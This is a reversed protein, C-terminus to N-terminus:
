HSRLFAPATSDSDPKQILRGNSYILDDSGNPTGKNSRDLSANSVSGDPGASIIWYQQGDEAGLYVFRQDWADTQPLEKVYTPILMPQLADWSVAPYKNHDTAYAEVAKAITTMLKVTTEIPGLLEVTDGSADTSSVGLQSRLVVTELDGNISKDAKLALMLVKRALERDKEQLAQATERLHIAANHSEQRDIGIWADALMAVDEIRDSTSIISRIQSIATEKCAGGIAGQARLLNRYSKGDGRRQEVSRTLRRCTEDKLGDDARVADVMMASPKRDDEERIIVDFADAYARAVKPKWKPDTVALDFQHEADGIPHNTYLYVKGLLYHLELDDPNKEVVPVLLSEAAAYNGVAIMGDVKKATRHCALFSLAVAILVSARRM